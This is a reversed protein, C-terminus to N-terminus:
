DECEAIAKPDDAPVVTTRLGLGADFVWTSGNWDMGDTDFSPTYLKGDKIEVVEGREYSTLGYGVHKYFLKDGPKLNKLDSMEIEKPAPRTESQRITVIGAKHM